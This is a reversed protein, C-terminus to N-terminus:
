YLFLRGIPRSKSKIAEKYENIKKIKLINQLINNIYFDIFHIEDIYIHMKDHKKQNIEFYFKINATNFSITYV